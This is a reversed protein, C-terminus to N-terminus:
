ELLNIFPQTGYNGCKQTSWGMSSPSKYKLPESFGMTFLENSKTIM